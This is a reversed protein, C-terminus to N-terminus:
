RPGPQQTVVHPTGFVTVRWSSEETCNLGFTDPAVEARAEACTRDVLDPVTAFRKTSLQVESDAAVRAHAAPVQSQVIRNEADDNADAADRLRAQRLTSQAAGLAQGVVDPVEIVERTDLRVASGADVVSGPAPSQQAVIREGQRQDPQAVLKAAEVAGIAEDLPRERVDPVTVTEAAWVVVRTPAPAPVAAGGAVPTQEFVRGIAGGPSAAPRAECEFQAHGYAAARERAAACDLGLLRPVSLGLGIEVASGPAVRTGAAPSQSLVRRGERAAPGSARAQLKRNALASAAQAEGLGILAPVVVTPAPQVRLVLPGALPLATGAALSQWNVRGPRAGDVEAGIACGAYKLGLADLTRAAQTCTMGRLEPLLRQPEPPPRAPVPEIWVRLADVRSAPTGPADSQANITGAPYKALAQGRLCASLAVRLPRLALRAQDCTMGRLDPLVPAPEAPTQPPPPPPAPELRVRLGRVQSAITGPPYSQANITGAAVRGLAPGPLCEGLAIRLPRLAARAEDCTMGRLDPLGPRDPRVEPDAKVSGKIIADLIAAAAAGAAPNGGQNRTTPTEETDAAPGPEFTARLGEVRAIPTGPPVSQANITGVPYPIRSVGPRCEILAVHLRRLEAQAQDCTKGRLDPLAASPVPAPMPTAQGPLQMQPPLFVKMDGVSPPKPKVEQAWAGGAAILLLLGVCVLWVRRM